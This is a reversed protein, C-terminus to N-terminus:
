FITSLYSVHAIQSTFICQRTRLDSPELSSVVSGDHRAANWVLIPHGHKDKGCWFLEHRKVLDSYDDQSMEGGEAQRHRRWDMHSLLQSQAEALKRNNATVFRRLTADTVLWWWEKLLQAEDGGLEKLSELSLRLESVDDITAQLHAKGAAHPANQESGPTVLDDGSVPITASIAEPASYTSAPHSPLSTISSDLEVTKREISQWDGRLEDLAVKEADSSDLGSGIGNEGWFSWVGKPQTESVCPKGTAAVDLYLFGHNPSRTRLVFSVSGDARLEEHTLEQGCGEFEASESTRVLSWRHSWTWPAAADVCVGADSIRLSPQPHRDGRLLLVANNEPQSQDCQAKWYFSRRAGVLSPPTTMTASVDIDSTATSSDATDTPPMSNEFATANVFPTVLFDLSQQASSTLPQALQQATSLAYSMTTGSPSEASLNLLAPTGNAPLHPTCIVCNSDDIGLYYAGGDHSEFVLTVRHPLSSLEAGM